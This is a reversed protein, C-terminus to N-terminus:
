FLMASHIQHHDPYIDKLWRTLCESFLVGKDRLDKYTDNKDRNKRHVNDLIARIEPKSIENIFYRYYTILESTLEPSREQGIEKIRDIPSHDLLKIVRKIKVAQTGEVTEAATIIGSFYILKRSFRLKISRVGWDQDDKATKFEYDTAMTRWYRIIDNLFFKAIQGTDVREKIYTELLKKRYVNFKSPNVLAKGELLMLMRRTINRNNDNVGGIDELIEDISIIAGFGFTGTNGPNKPVIKSIADKLQTAVETFSDIDDKSDVITFIDLDSEESAECRGYSGTMVIAFRGAIAKPLTELIGYIANQMKAINQNTYKKRAEIVDEGDIEM